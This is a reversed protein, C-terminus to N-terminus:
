VNGANRVTQGPKPVRGFISVDNQKAKFRSGADGGATM